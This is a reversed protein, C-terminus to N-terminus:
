LCSSMKAFHIFTYLACLCMFFTWRQVKPFYSNFDCHPIVVCWDSDGWGSLSLLSQQCLRLSVSGKHVALQFAFHYWCDPFYNAIEQFVLCAVVMHDLLQVGSCKAWCFLFRLDCVSFGLKIQLLWFSSDAWIGKWLHTTLRLYMIYFVVWCRFPVLLTVTTPSLGIGFLQMSYLEM